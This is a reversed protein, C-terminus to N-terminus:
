RDSKLTSVWENLAERLYGASTKLQESFGVPEARSFRLDEIEILTEILHHIEAQTKKVVRGKLELASLTSYNETPDILTLTRRILLALRAFRDRESVNLTELSKIQEEIQRRAKYRKRNRFYASRERLFALAILTAVVTPIALVELWGPQYPFAPIDTIGYPTPIPTPPM